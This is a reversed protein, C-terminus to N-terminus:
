QPNTNDLDNPITIRGSGQYFAWSRDDIWASRQESTDSPKQLISHHVGQCFEKVEGVECAPIPVDEDYDQLFCSLPDKVTDLDLKFEIEDPYRDERFEDSWVRRFLEACSM